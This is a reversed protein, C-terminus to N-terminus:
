LLMKQFRILNLNKYIQNQSLFELRAKKQDKIPINKLYFFDMKNIKSNQRKLLFNDTQITQRDFTVQDIKSNQSKVKPVLITKKDNLATELIKFTSIENKTSIFCFIFDTNKYLSSSLFVSAVKEQADTKLKQNSIFDVLEAKIQKRLTSKETSKELSSLEKEM